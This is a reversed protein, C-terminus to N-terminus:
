ETAGQAQRLRRVARQLPLRDLCKFCVDVRDLLELASSSDAEGPFGCGLVRWAADRLQGITTLPNVTGLPCRRPFRDVINVGHLECRPRQRRARARYSEHRVCCEHAPAAACGGPGTEELRM